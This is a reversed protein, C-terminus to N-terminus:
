PLLPKILSLTYDTDTKEPRQFLFTDVVVKEEEIFDRM